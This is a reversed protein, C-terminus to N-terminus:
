PMEAYQISREKILENDFTYAIGELVDGIKDGYSDDLEM